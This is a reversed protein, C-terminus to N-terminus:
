VLATQPPTEIFGTCNHKCQLLFPSLVDHLARGQKINTYHSKYQENINAPTRWLWQWLQRLATTLLNYHQLKSAHAFGNKSSQLHLFDLPFGQLTQLNNCATGHCTIHCCQLSNILIVTKSCIHVFPVGCSQLQQFQKFLRPM